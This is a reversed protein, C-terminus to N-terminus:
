ADFYTRIAQYSRRSLWNTEFAQLRGDKLLFEIRVRFYRKAEATVPTGDQKTLRISHLEERDFFIPKKNDDMGLFCRGNEVTIGSRFLYFLNVVCFFCILSVLTTLIDGYWTKDFGFHNSLGALVVCVACTVLTILVSLYDVTRFKMKGYDVGRRPKGASFKRM